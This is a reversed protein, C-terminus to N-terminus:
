YAIGIGIIQHYSSYDLIIEKFDNLNKIDFSEHNIITDNIVYLSFNEEFKTDILKNISKFHIWNYNIFIEKQEDLISYIAKEKDIVAIKYMNNNKNLM